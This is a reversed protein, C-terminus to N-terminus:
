LLGAGGKGGGLIDGGSLIIRKLSWRHLAKQMFEVNDVRTALREISNKSALIERDQAKDLGGSAIFTRLRTLEGEDLWVGHDSCVDILVGSISKFNIRNMLNECRVCVYLSGGGNPAGSVYTTELSEDGYVDKQSTLHEFELTDLWMGRCSPCVYLESKRYPKAELEVKCKPCFATSKTPAIKNPMNCFPCIRTRDNIKKKCRVCIKEYM